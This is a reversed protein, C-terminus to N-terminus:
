RVCSLSKSCGTVSLRNIYPRHSDDGVEEECAVSREVAVSLLLFHLSNNVAVIFKFRCFVPCINRLGGLIKDFEAESDVGSIAWCSSLSQIM